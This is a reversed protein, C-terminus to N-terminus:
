KKPKFFQIIYGGIKITKVLKGMSGNIFNQLKIECTQLSRDTITKEKELGELRIVLAERAQELGKYQDTITTLQKQCEKLNYQTELLQTEVSVLKTIDGVIEPQQNPVSLIGAIQKQFDQYTKLQSTTGDLENQTEIQKTLAEQYKNWNADRELRMASMEEENYKLGSTDKFRLWGLVRSYSYTKLHCNTGIPDNQEFCEFSTTNATGTCIGVHGAGGYLYSWVVLDGVQPIADVSDNAILTFNQKEVETPNTYIEYAYILGSFITKPLGLYECFYIALDFCQNLNSSDVREIFKGNNENLFAKFKEAIDM